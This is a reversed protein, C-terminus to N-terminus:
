LFETHARDTSGAGGWGQGRCQGADQQSVLWSLSRVSGGWPAVDGGASRVTGSSPSCGSQVRHKLQRLHKPWGRSLRCGDVGLIWMKRDIARVSEARASSVESCARAQSTGSVSGPQLICSAGHVPHAEPSLIPNTQSHNPVSPFALLQTPAQSGVPTVGGSGM